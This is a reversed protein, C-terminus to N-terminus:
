TIHIERKRYLRHRRMFRIDHFARNCIDCHYPREVSHMIFNLSKRNILHDVAGIVCVCCNRAIYYNIIIKMIIVNVLHDAM